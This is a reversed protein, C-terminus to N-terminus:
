PVSRSLFGIEEEGRAIDRDRERIVPNHQLQLPLTFHVNFFVETIPSTSPKARLTALFSRLGIIRSQKAHAEIMARFVCKPLVRVKVSM